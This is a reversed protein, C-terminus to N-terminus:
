AYSPMRSLTADRPSPSTYLLCHIYLSTSFKVSKQSIHSSLSLWPSIFQELGYKCHSNIETSTAHFNLAWVLHFACGHICVDTYCRTHSIHSHTHTHINSSNYIVLIQPHFEISRTAVIRLIEYSLYFTHQAMQLISSVIKNKM